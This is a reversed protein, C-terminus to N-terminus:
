AVRSPAVQFVLMKVTGGQVPEQGQISGLVLVPAKEMLQGDARLAVSDSAVKYIEM